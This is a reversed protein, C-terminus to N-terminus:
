LTFVHIAECFVFNLERWQHLFFHVLVNTAIPDLTSRRANHERLMAKREENTLTLESFAHCFLLFLVCLAVNMRTTTDFLHGKKSCTVPQCPPLLLCVLFVKSAVFVRRVHTKGFWAELVKQLIARLKRSPDGKVIRIEGCLSVNCSRLWVSDATWVDEVPDIPNVWVFVPGVWVKVSEVCFLSIIPLTASYLHWNHRAALAFYLHGAQEKPVSNKVKSENIKMKLIARIKNENESPQKKTAAKM